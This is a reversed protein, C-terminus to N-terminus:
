TSRHVTAGLLGILTEETVCRLEFAVLERSPDVAIDAVDAHVGSARGHGYWGQDRGGIWEPAMDSYHQLMGDIDRPGALAITGKTGDAYQLTVEAQTMHTQSNHTHNALLLYLRDARAGVAILASREFPQWRSLYLGDPGEVSVAFPVGVHTMLIGDEARARMADTSIYDTEYWTWNNLQPPNQVDYERTFIQSLTDNRPIDLLKCEDAFKAKRSPLAELVRWLRTHSTATDDGIQVTVVNHGPLIGQTNELPVKLELTERSGIDVPASLDEGAFAVSAPGALAASTNNRLVLKLGISGFRPVAAIRAATLELRPVCEVDVPAWFTGVDSQIKAFATHHGDDKAVVARLGEPTVAADRLIGQPDRVDVLAGGECRVTIEEGICVRSEYHLKAPPGEGHVRVVTHKASPVRVEIYPRLTTERIKTEPPERDNVTIGKLRAFDAPICFLHDLESDTELTYTRLDGDRNFSMRFGRTSLDARDWDSPFRPIWSVQGQDVRPQLGFLGEVVTRAFMSSADAFDVYTGQSGDRAGYCSISGPVTAKATSDCCVKLLRWARDFRGAYYYALATNLSENFGILGNTVIVPFWDNALIQDGFRWLREDLYRTMQYAQFEDAAGMEITHYITAAEAADHLAGDGDLYEAFCGRDAIWLRRNMEELTREAQRAYFEGDEAALNAVQAAFRNHSIAYASAQACAHGNYHHGDSIWTNVANTYLGDLGKGIERRQYELCLEISPWLEKMLEHDGTWWYHSRLHDLFVEHMNYTAGTGKGGLTVFSHFKGRSNIGDAPETFQHSAHFQAAQKIREFDGAVIPGYWGRWGLYWGGCETGWRLAGHLVSPPRWQGDMAANNGRIAADLIPHPTHTQLRGAIDEYHELASSWAGEPDALAADLVEPQTAAIIHVPRPGVTTEVRAAVGDDLKEESWPGPPSAGLFVEAGEVSPNALRARADNISVANGKCDPEGRGGPLPGHGAKNDPYDGRLGGYWWSLRVPRPAEARVIFGEADALAIVSLVLPTDALLSDTIQWQVHAADYAFEIHDAQDLWKRGAEAVIEAGLAGLKTTPGRSLLVVPRDGAFVTSPGNTGYLPRNLTHAGNAIRYAGDRVDYQQTGGITWIMWDQIRYNDELWTEEPLALAGQTLDIDSDRVLGFADIHPICVPRHIRLAHKGKHLAVITVPFWRATSSKWSGTTETLARARVVVGDISVDVPRSAQAAFKCYLRYAGAQAIEFDWEAWDPTNNACQIIGGGDAWGKDAVAMVSGRAFAEAEIVLDFDAPPQPLALGPMMLVLAMLVCHRM